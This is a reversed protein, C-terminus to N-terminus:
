GVATTLSLIEDVDYDVTTATPPVSIPIWGGGDVRYRAGWRYSVTLEYASLSEHCRAGGPDQCTKATYAHGFGGNPWGNLLGFGEQPVVVENGDGWDVEIADVFTEVDIRVGSHPSVLSASWPPPPDESVFVEMGVVGAGSPPSLGATPEPHTYESLLEYAEMLAKPAETPESTCRPYDTGTVVPGVAVDNPDIGVTAVGDDDVAVLVRNTARSTWYWCPEEGDTSVEPSLVVPVETSSGYDSTETSGALRCRTVHKAGDDNRGSSDTWCTWTEAAAASFPMSVVLIVTLAAAHLRMRVAM